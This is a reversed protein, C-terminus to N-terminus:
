RRDGAHTRDLVRWRGRTNDFTADAPFALLSVQCSLALRQLAGEDYAVADRLLDGHEGTMARAVVDAPAMM